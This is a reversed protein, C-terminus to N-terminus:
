GARFTQPGSHRIISSESKVSTTPPKGSLKITGMGGKSLPSVGMHGAFIGGNFLFSTGATLFFYIIWYNLKKKM